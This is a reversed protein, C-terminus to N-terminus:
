TTTKPSVVNKVPLAIYLLVNKNASLQHESPSTTAFNWIKQQIKTVTDLIVYPTKFVM